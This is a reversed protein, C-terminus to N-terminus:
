SVLHDVLKADAPILLVKVPRKDLSRMVAQNCDPMAARSFVLNNEVSKTLQCELPGRRVPM